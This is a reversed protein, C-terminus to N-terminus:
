NDVEIIRWDYNYDDTLWAETETLDWNSEKGYGEEFAIKSEEDSQFCNSFEKMFDEKMIETAESPTDAEGVKYIERDICNIVVYKM